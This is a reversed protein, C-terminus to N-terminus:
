PPHPHFSPNLPSQINSYVGYDLPHPHFSPNLPSHYKYCVRLGLSSSTCPCPPDTCYLVGPHRASHTAGRVTIELQQHFQQLVATLFFLVCSLNAVIPLYPEESQSYMKLRFVSTLLLSCGAIVLTCPKAYIDLLLKGPTM